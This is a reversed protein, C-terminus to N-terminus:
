SFPGCQSARVDLEANVFGAEQLQAQQDPPLEDLPFFFMACSQECEFQDRYTRTAIGDSRVHAAELTELTEPQAKTSM